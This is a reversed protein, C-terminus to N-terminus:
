LQLSVRTVPKPVIGMAEGRQDRCELMALAVWPGRGPGVRVGEAPPLGMFFFFSCLCFPSGLGLIEFLFAEKLYQSTLTLFSKFTALLVAVLLYSIDM